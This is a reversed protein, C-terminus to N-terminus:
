PAAKILEVTYVQGHQRHSGLLNGNDQGALFLALFVEDESVPVINVHVKLKADEEAHDTNTLCSKAM